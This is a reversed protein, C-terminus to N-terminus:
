AGARGADPADAGAHIPPRSREPYSDAPLASIPGHLVHGGDVNLCEGTVYAAAPSALFVVANAIDAPRGPYPLPVGSMDQGVEDDYTSEWGETRFAGPAVCNVRVSPGWEYALTRTLEVVGARAAASHAIGPLGRGVIAVIQVISGGGGDLMRRGFEQTMAWTGNLDLDIVSKWGNESFDRAKQPFQGGANNVLVDVRHRDALAEVTSRDRIDVLDVDVPNSTVSTIEAAAARLPEERRAAIVVRAGVQSLGEAIARGLGTGGGTVLATRGALLDVAFPREPPTTADGM